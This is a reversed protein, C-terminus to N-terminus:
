PLGGEKSRSFLAHGYAGMISTCPTAERGAAASHAGHAFNSCQALIAIAGSIALIRTTM